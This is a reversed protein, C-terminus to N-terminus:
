IFNHHPLQAFVYIQMICFDCRTIMKQNQDCELSLLSIRYILITTPNLEIIINKPQLTNEVFRFNCLSHVM